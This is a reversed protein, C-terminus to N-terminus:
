SIGIGATPLLKNRRLPNFPQSDAPMSTDGGIIAGGIFAGGVSLGLLYGFNEKLKDPPSTDRIASQCIPQMCSTVGDQPSYVTQTKAAPTNGALVPPSVCGPSKLHMCVLARGAYLLPMNATKSAQVVTWWGIAAGTGSFVMFPKRGHVDSLSGWLKTFIVTFIQDISALTGYLSVGEPSVKTSGPLGAPSTRDTRGRVTTLNILTRAGRLRYSLTM